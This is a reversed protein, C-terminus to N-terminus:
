RNKFCRIDGLMVYNSKDQIILYVIVQNSNLLYIKFIGTEVTKWPTIAKVDEFVLDHQLDWMHAFVNKDYFTSISGFKFICDATADKKISDYVYNDKNIEIIGLKIFMLNSWDDFGPLFVSPTVANNSVPKTENTKYNNELENICNKRDNENKYSNCVKLDTESLSYIPEPSLSIFVILSYLANKLTSM